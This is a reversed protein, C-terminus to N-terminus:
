QAENLCLQAGWYFRLVEGTFSCRVRFVSCRASLVTRRAQLVPSRGLLIHKRYTLQVTKDVLCETASLETDSLCLQAGRYFRLVEGIFSCRVRFVSCRASLVTHRVQLVAACGLFFSVVSNALARRQIKLRLAEGIFSHAEGTFCCRVSSVFSKYSPKYTVVCVAWYVSVHVHVNHLSINFRTQHHYPFTPCLWM